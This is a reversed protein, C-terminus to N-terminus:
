LDFVADKPAERFAECADQYVREIGHQAALIRARDVQLDCIGEVRFGAIRYAPLHADRVIGGAGIIVIPRRTAPLVVRMAEIRHSDRAATRFLFCFIPLSGRHPISCDCSRDSPALLTVKKMKRSM